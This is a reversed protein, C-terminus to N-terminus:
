ARARVRDLATMVTATTFNAQADVFITGSQDTEADVIWDQVQEPDLVDMPPLRMRASPPWAGDPRQCERLWEVALTLTDRVSSLNQALVLTRVCWATAFPSLGGYAASYAAGEPGIRGAAWEVAKHVRCHDRPDSHRALAEAALATTYEDDCWWYGKWSGDPRQSTRLFDRCSEGWGQLAAAAATVCAHASCWGKYGPAKWLDVAPFGPVKRATRFTALGGNPLLHQELFQIALRARMSQGAGVAQALRLAWTTSDADSFSSASFGWGEPTRRESGPSEIIPQRRGTLLVWADCAAQYAREDPATALAYGVYATVWEESGRALSPFDQWWGRATRSGLLFRIAADVATNLSDRSASALRM